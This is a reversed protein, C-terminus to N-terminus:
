AFGHFSRCRDVNVGIPRRAPTSHRFRPTLYAEFISLTCNGEDTVGAPRQGMGEFGPRMEDLQVM